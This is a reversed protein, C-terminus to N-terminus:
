EGQLRTLHEIFYEMFRAYDAGTSVEIEAGDSAELTRGQDDVRVHKKEFQVFDEELASAALADHLFPFFGERDKYHDVFSSWNQFLMGFLPHREKNREIIQYVESERTVQIAPNVTIDSTVLKVHAGSNVVAKTAQPDGKANFEPWTSTLNGGMQIIVFKKPDRKFWAQETIKAVETMAAIGLITVKDQTQALREVAQLYDTSFPTAGAEDVEMLCGVRKEKKPTGQFIEVGTLNMREFFQRTLLARKGVGSPTLDEDATIFVKLVFKQFFKSVLAAAADDFDTWPDSICVLPIKGGASSIAAM